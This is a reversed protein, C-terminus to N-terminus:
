VRSSSLLHFHQGFWDLVPVECLRQLRLQALRLKRPNDLKEELRCKCICGFLAVRQQRFHDRLQLRFAGLVAELELDLLHPGQGRARRPPWLLRLSHPGGGFIQDGARFFAPIRQRERQPWCNDPRNWSERSHGKGDLM